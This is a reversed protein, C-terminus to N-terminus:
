LDTELFNDYFFGAGQFHDAGPAHHVGVEVNLLVAKERHSSWVISKSEDTRIGFFNKLNKKDSKNIPGLIVSEFNFKSRIFSPVYDLMSKLKAFSMAIKFNSPIIMGEPFDVTCFPKNVLLLRLGGYKVKEKAIKLADKYTNDFMPVVLLQTDRFDRYRHHSHRFDYCILLGVKIKYRNGDSGLSNITFDGGAIDGESVSSNTLLRDYPSLKKKQFESVGEDGVVISVIKSTQSDQKTGCVTTVNYNSFWLMAKGFLFDSYSGEPFVVLDPKHETVVKEIKSIKNKYEETVDASFNKLTYDLHCVLVKSKM